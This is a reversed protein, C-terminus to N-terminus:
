SNKAKVSDHMVYTFKLPSFHGKIRYTSMANPPVQWSRISEKVTDVMTKKLGDLASMTMSNESGIVKNAVRIQDAFDPMCSRFFPREPIFGEEFEDYQGSGYENMMAYMAVPNGARSPQAPDGSPYVDEPFFGVDFDANSFFAAKKLLIDEIKSGKSKPKPM